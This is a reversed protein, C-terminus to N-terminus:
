LLLGLTLTLTLTSYQSVATITRKVTVDDAASQAALRAANRPAALTLSLPRTQAHPRPLAIPRIQIM